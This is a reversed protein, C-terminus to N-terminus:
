AAIAKREAYGLAAIWPDLAKRAEVFLNPVAAEYAAFRYARGPDPQGPLAFHAPVRPPGPPSAEVAPAGLGIHRLVRAITATPDLVLDEFRIALYRLTMQGRFHRIMSMQLDYHRALAELSVHSGAEMQKDQGFQSLVVDLPHRLVHIVPADPFTLGILGLEWLNGPARDTLFRSDPRAVGARAACQDYHARLDDMLHRREGVLAADLCEPYADPEQGALRAGLAPLRRAFARDDAPVIGPIRSLLREVLSTGSRAVGLLFVPTLGGGPGGRPLGALRDASFFARLRAARAELAEPEYRHGLRERQFRRTAIFAGASETLRGLRDYAEGKAALETATLTSGVAEIRALAAEARGSRLDCLARLYGATRDAPAKALVGDLLAIAAPYDGRQAHVQALGCSARINDPRLELSKAYATVAEDLRGQLKLNWALNGIGVGDERNLLSLATRYHTEGGTVDGAETLAMGMLHHVNADRPVQRLAEHLPAVAEAHRGQGLLLQAFVLNAQGGTGPNEAPLAALRRLLAEAARPQNETQRIDLLLRLAGRHTPAIDLLKLIAFEADRLKRAAFAARAEDVLKDISPLSAPDAIAGLDLDCCRIRRLGSGCACRTTDIKLAM